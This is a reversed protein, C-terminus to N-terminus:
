CKLTTKSTKEFVVGQWTWTTYLLWPHTPNCFHSFRKIKKTDNKQQKRTTNHSSIIIIIININGPQQGVSEDEWRQNIGLETPRAFSSEFPRQPTIIPPTITWTYGFSGLPLSFAMTLIHANLMSGHPQGQTLCGCSNCKSDATSPCCKVRDQFIFIYLCGTIYHDCINSCCMSKHPDYNVHYVVALEKLKEVLTKLPVSTWRPPPTWQNVYHQNLCWTISTSPQNNARPSKQSSSTESAVMFNRINFKAIQKYHHQKFEQNWCPLCLRNKM